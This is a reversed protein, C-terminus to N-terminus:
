FGINVGLSFVRPMVSNGLEPDFGNFRKDAIVFVNNVNFSLQANTLGVTRCWKSPIDWTLAM